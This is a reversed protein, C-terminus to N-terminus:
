LIEFNSSHAMVVTVIATPQTTKKEYYKRRPV